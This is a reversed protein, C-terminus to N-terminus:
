EYEDNDYEYVTRKNMLGAMSRLIKKLALPSISKGNYRKHADFDSRGKRPLGYVSLMFSRMKGPTKLNAHMLAQPGSVAGDMQNQLLAVNHPQNKIFEREVGVFARSENTFDIVVIFCSILFMKGPWKLIVVSHAFM